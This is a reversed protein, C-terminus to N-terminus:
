QWIRDAVEQHNVCGHKVAPDSLEACNLCKHMRLEHQSLKFHCSLEVHCLFFVKDAAITTYVQALETACVVLLAEDQVFRCESLKTVASHSDNIIINTTCMASVRYAFSLMCFSLMPFDALLGIVNVAERRSHIAPSYLGSFYSFFPSFFTCTPSSCSASRATVQHLVTGSVVAHPGEIPSKHIRRGPGHLAQSGSRPAQSRGHGPQLLGHVGRGGGESGM